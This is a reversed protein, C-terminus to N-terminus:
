SFVSSEDSDIDDDDDGMDSGPVGIISLGRIRLM